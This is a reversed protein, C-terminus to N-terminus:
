SFPSTSTQMTAKASSAANVGENCGNRTSPLAAILSYKV